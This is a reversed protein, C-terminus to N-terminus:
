RAPKIVPDQSKLGLHSMEANNPKEISFSVSYVLGSRPKDWPNDL